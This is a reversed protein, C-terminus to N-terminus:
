LEKPQDTPETPEPPPHRRAPGGPVRRRPDPHRDPPHRAARRGPRQHRGRRPPRRDSEARWEERHVRVMGLEHHGAPIEQLVTGTQGILRKSGIGDTPEGQDLRRSLPRLAAFSGFSIVVFALWQWVLEVDFFALLCAVLAGVAFPALFFTGAIALEGLAFTVATALWIWRWTEPDEM